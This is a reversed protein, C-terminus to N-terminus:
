SWQATMRSLRQTTHAPHTGAAYKKPFSDSGSDNAKPTIIFVFPRTASIDSLTPMCYPSTVPFSKAM